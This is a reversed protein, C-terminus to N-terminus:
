KLVGASYAQQADPDIIFYQVTLFGKPSVQHIEVKYLMEKGDKTSFERYHVKRKADEVVIIPTEHVKAKDKKNIFGIYGKTSDLTDVFSVVGFPYKSEDVFHKKDAREIAGVQQSFLCVLAVLVALVKKM